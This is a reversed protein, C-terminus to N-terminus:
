TPKSNFFSHEVSRVNIITITKNPFNLEFVFTLMHFVGRKVQLNIDPQHPNLQDSVEFGYICVHM